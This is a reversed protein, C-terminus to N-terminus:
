LKAVGNSFKFEPNDIDRAVVLKKIIIVQACFRWKIANTLSAVYRINLIKLPNFEM